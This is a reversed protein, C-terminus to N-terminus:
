DLILSPASVRNPGTKPGIQPRNELLKPVIRLRKRVGFRLFAASLLLYCCIAGSLLLYCCIAASLLLYCCIAASLM